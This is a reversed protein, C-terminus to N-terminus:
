VKNVRVTQNKVLDCSSRSAHSINPVLIDNCKARSIMPRVHDIINKMRVVAKRRINYFIRKVKSKYYFIIASVLYVVTNLGIMMDKIIPPINELKKNEM